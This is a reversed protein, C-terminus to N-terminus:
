GFQLSCQKTERSLRDKEFGVSSRRSLCCPAPHVERPNASRINRLTVLTRTITVKTFRVPQPIVPHHTFCQDQTHRLPHQWMFNIHSDTAQSLFVWSWLPPVMWYASPTPPVFLFLLSETEDRHVWEQLAHQINWEEQRCIQRNQGQETVQGKAVNLECQCM